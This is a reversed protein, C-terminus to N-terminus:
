RQPRNKAKTRAKIYYATAKQQDGDADAYSKAWTQKDYYGSSIEDYAEAYTIKSELKSNLDTKYSSNFLQINQLAIKAPYLITCKYNILFFFLVPISALLLGAGTGTNATRMISAKSTYPDDLCLKFIEAFAFSIAIFIIITIWAIYDRPKIFGTNCIFMHLGLIFIFVFPIFTSLFVDSRHYIDSERQKAKSLDELVAERYMDFYMTNMTESYRHLSRLMYTDLEPVTSIDRNKWSSIRQRLSEHAEELNGLPGDWAIKKVYDLYDKTGHDTLGERQQTIMLFAVFVWIFYFSTISIATINLYKIKASRVPGKSKISSIKNCFYKSYFTVLCLFVFSITLLVAEGSDFGAFTDYKAQVKEGFLEKSEESLNKYYEQEKTYAVGNGFAKVKKPKDFSQYKPDNEVTKWELIEAM